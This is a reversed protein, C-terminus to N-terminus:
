KGFKFNGQSASMALGPIGKSSFFTRISKLVVEVSVAGWRQLWAYSHGVLYRFFTRRFLTRSYVNKELASM